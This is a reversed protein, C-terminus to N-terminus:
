VCVINILKKPVVIIKKITKGETHRKVGEHELATQEILSQVSDAPVTIQGRMKGNIQVTMDVTNRIIAEPDYKPFPAQMVSGEHGLAQWLVHTIHPVIPSLMLVVAECTEQKLQYDAYSHLTFTNLHNILEMVAAIATNFTYRREFDDTVKQITEHLVRKMITHESSIQASTSQDFPNSTTIHAQMMKWLRKLFRFAGQVGADSWELSQEPPSTFLIFLRLTDAGYADILSQPDITNGKSKSMKAGDKLVMGQTLLNTFPEDSDILGLDRIVKNLFRAYLLHLIAHEIGGIYQNVPGWYKAREDLMKTNQDPCTFRLQYWSSEVFTDFTDTERKAPKQCQPCDVHYFEPINALPAGIKEAPINEPLTVPLQDDPVPVAGCTNCHIIPIPAGWYRQRSVGWDRLRYHVQREGIKLAELTDAIKEKAAEASLGNFEGSDILIDEDNIVVKIPLNYKESFEKDRQDHAPVAMLAGTGYDLLVYNAIWIAVKEKTFPHIAYLGTPMGLKEMTAMDAEAVKGQQCQTIFDQLEPNQSLALQALPHQAAIAVYTVGMITDQRTTYVSLPQADPHDVEFRFNVGESRGIWNRQMTRVQEPWGKLSDLDALLEEAYDSIKLFWQAITRREVLAGSRWGRGDIVQENALVTQDVPDWNVLADKKYVLGKKLMQIFLWQEWKYYSPDCTAIEREWDFSLGLTKLQTRMHDINQYTWTQPAIKHKIAANEAPLGFADWGIPHLVNKGKMRQFRAIVDGLTYNRVHGVHLSGSPYPFMSLCYFNEKTPDQTARFAHTQEWFAQAQAEIKEPHYQESLSPQM